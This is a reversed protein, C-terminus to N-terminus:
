PPWRAQPKPSLVGGRAQALRLALTVRQRLAGIFPELKALGETIAASTEELAFRAAPEQEGASTASAPLGFEQTQVQFGAKALRHATTLEARRTHKGTCEESIKEADARLAETAQRAERWQAVTSGDAAVPPLDAALLLPQLTINVGGYYKVAMANAEATAASERLIEDASTLNQDTFELELHKEYQHRTVAKSLGTFDSFLRAAPETLRFVGPEDLRRAARVRDTDSPHTDFWGTKESAAATSLKQQVEAPLTTAKHGILLPLDEPLRKSTWSQRVDEYATETAVNLLRLQSATLEFADSGAVKAEYSDADYEMQRLMFCSIAHGAQMLAWLIRRTVWVCGRAMHLVIRIRWDGTRAADDLKEDWQDREYVVRAFWFSINRIVYTLRMGAGQAFHGFEHALVGAFQRMDLGAALPLGITLVLDRSWLGCRLGASANVQCDVDIRCPERAGVLACIKRVFAFLLPEKVPDLTIPQPPKVKAAFFPKVMFFVLIGGAVAPGLYAIFRMFGGRGSASDLIWTDYKLHLLVAWVALAILALYLIPLLVMAFAVVALGASYLPSTKTHRLTGSFADLPSPGPPAVVTVPLGNMLIAPHAILTPIALPFPSLLRQCGGAKVHQPVLVGAGESHQRAKAASVKARSRM